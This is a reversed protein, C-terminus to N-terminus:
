MVRVLPESRAKLTASIVGTRNAPHPPPVTSRVVVVSRVVVTAGAGMSGMPEDVVVVVVCSVFQRRCAM